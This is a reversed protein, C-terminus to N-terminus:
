LASFFFPFVCLNAAPLEQTESEVTSISDLFPVLNLLSTAMPVCTTPKWTTGYEMVDDMVLANSRVKSRAFHGSNSAAVGLSLDIIGACLDQQRTVRRGKSLRREQLSQIDLSFKPRSELYGLICFAQISSFDVLCHKCFRFEFWQSCLLM